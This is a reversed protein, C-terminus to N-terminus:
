RAPSPLRMGLDTVDALPFPRTGVGLGLKRHEDPGRFEAQEGPHSFYHGIVRDVRATRVGLHEVLVTWWALDGVALIPSGDGFAWPYTARRHLEAHWLSLPGLTGREGTGSGLRCPRSSPPWAPDFPLADAPSSPRGTAADTAEQDYTVEWDGGVLQADRAATQLVEVADARLRDDLNLNALFPTTTRQTGVNWAQYITLPRESRVVHGRLWEPPPDGADFVYRPLVPVTQAELTAQHARLLDHRDPDAHWVACFVTTAAHPSIPVGLAYYTQDSIRDPATCWLRRLTSAAPINAAGNASLPM